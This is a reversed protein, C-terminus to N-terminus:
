PARRRAARHGAGAAHRLRAGARAGRGRAAGRRRPPRAGARRAGGRVALARHRADRGPLGQARRGRRPPRAAGDDPRRRAIAVRGRVHRVMAAFLTGGEVAEGMAAIALEAGDLDAQELLSEALGTTAMLRYLVAPSGPLELAARADAEAAAFDGTRLFLLSRHSYTAALLVGDGTERAEVLGADLGRRAAAFRDCWLLTINSQLFWPLDTPAPVPRASARIAREALGAAVAAPENRVCAWLASAALLERQVPGPEDVAARLADLRPAAPGASGEHLLAMSATAVELTRALAPNGPGLGAAVRELVPMADPSRQARTLVQALSLAATLQDAGPPLADLAARLHAEAGALGASVEAVGLELLRPGRAEPAPPEQLARRLYTVASEPAGGAVAVAAAAALRDVM